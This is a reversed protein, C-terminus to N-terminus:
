QWGWGAGTTSSKRQFMASKWGPNTPCTSPIAPCLHRKEVPPHSLFSSYGQIKKCANQAFSPLKNVGFWNRLTQQKGLIGVPEQEIESVKYGVILMKTSLEEVYGMKIDWSDPNAELMQVRCARASSLGLGKSGFRHRPWSKSLQIMGRIWRSEWIGNETM